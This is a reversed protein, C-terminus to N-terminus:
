PKWRAAWRVAKPILKEPYQHAGYCNSPRVINWPIGYTVGWAQVLHDAAAKTAAYPSSPALPATEVTEGDSVSGYVEDTSIQIFRPIEYARMARCMELLHQVGLVNTEVFRTNDRISNDVHTEAALNILADIEPFHELALINRGVFHVRDRGFAAEWSSPLSPDAAYTLADIGYVYDGRELLHQTVYRGIFGCCGMVAVIKAM